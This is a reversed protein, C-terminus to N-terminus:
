RSRQAFAEVHRRLEEREADTLVRPISLPERTVPNFLPSRRQDGRLRWRLMLALVRAIMIFVPFGDRPIAARDGTASEPFARGRVPGLAEGAPERFFARVVGIFPVGASAMTNGIPTNCCSAYWRLLGRSTLRLCEIREVGATFRLQAPSMQFIDTGGNADLVDAQDLVHAFAQCDNCYCVAHNGVNPAVGTAVGRVAGCRCALALDLPANAATM